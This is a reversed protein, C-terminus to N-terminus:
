PTECGGTAGLAGGTARAFATASSRAFRTREPSLDSSGYSRPPDIVVSVTLPWVLALSWNPRPELGSGAPASRPPYARRATRPLTMWPGLVRAAGCRLLAGPAPDTHAPPRVVSVSESGLLLRPGRGPYPM